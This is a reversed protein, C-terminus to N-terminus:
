RSLTEDPSVRLLTGWGREESFHTTGDGLLTQLYAMQGLHWLMDAVPMAAVEAFTFERSRFPIVRRLEEEPANRLMEAYHGASATLAEQASRVDAAPAFGVQALPGAELVRSMRHLVHTCHNVIELASKATPAPKWELRDAPIFDLNAAINACAWTVQRALAEMVTM